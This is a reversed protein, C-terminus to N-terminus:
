DIRRVMFDTEEGDGYEYWGLRRGFAEEGWGSITMDNLERREERAVGWVRVCREFAGWFLWMCGYKGHFWCMWNGFRGSDIDSLIEISEIWQNCPRSTCLLAYISGNRHLMVDQSATQLHCPNLTFHDVYALHNIVLIQRVMCDFVEGSWGLVVALWWCFQVTPFWARSLLLRRILGDCPMPHQWPIHVISQHFLIHM